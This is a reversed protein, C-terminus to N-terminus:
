RELSEVVRNLLEEYVKNQNERSYFLPESTGIESIFSSEFRKLENELEKENDTAIINQFKGIFDSLESPRTGYYIIPKNLGIYDFVKTGLGEKAKYIILSANMGCLLKMAESYDLKSVYKYTNKGMGAKGVYETADDNAEGAHFLRINHGKKNLDDIVKLFSTAYGEDYYLFKGICGVRYEGQSNPVIGKYSSLDDHGNFVTFFKEKYKKYRKKLIGTNKDTVSVIASAYGISRREHRIMMLDYIFRKIKILVNRGNYYYTYFLWPDRYDLVLPIGHKKCIRWLFIQPDFPGMSVMCISYKNELFEEEIRESITLNINETEEIEIHKIRKPVPRTWIDSEYHSRGLSIVAVAHGCKSLYDALSTMRAAGVLTCPAFAYSLILISFM